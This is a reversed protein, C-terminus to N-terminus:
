CRDDAPFRLGTQRRAEDMVELELLSHCNHPNVPPRELILRIWERVEFIMNRGETRSFVTEQKGNRYVIAVDRPNAIEQILMCGEEGQIESPVRSETIKSYVLEAQMGSEYGALITGTGDIGNKLILADALIRDPRGFLRVLPHVCYVGLDMLAGGSSSLRFVNEFIGAKFREYRSSYQCYQFRVRRIKGLQPLAQEMAFFGPDFVPRMAELLIARNEKAIELLKAFEGRNSAAPKELLVHKGHSLMLAAQEFHLQNPSAIYVADIGPDEALAVLDTHIKEADHKQAFLRANEESRSYVAAYQLEQCERAAELFWDTVFNTGITAFRIM